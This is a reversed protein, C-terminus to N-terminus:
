IIEYGVLRSSYKGEGLVLTVVDTDGAMGVASNPVAKGGNICHGGGGRGTRCIRVDNPGRGKIRKRFFTHQFNKTNQCIRFSLHLPQTILIFFNSKCFGVSLLLILNSM